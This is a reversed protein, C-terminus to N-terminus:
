RNAESAHITLMAGAMNFIFNMKLSHRQPDCIVAANKLPQDWDTHIRSIRPGLERM